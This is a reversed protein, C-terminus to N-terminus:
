CGSKVGIYGYLSEQEVSFPGELLVTVLPTRDSNQVQEMFLRGTHLLKQFAPGYNIIGIDGCWCANECCCVRICCMIVLFVCHLPTLVILRASRGCQPLLECVM